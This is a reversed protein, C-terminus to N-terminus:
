AAKRMPPEVNHIAYQASQIREMMTTLLLSAQAVDLKAMAQAERLAVDLGRTAVKLARAVKVTRAAPRNREMAERLQRKTVTAVDLDRVDGGAQIFGRVASAATRAFNTRRNRELTRRRTEDPSAIDVPAIDATIVARMVAAYCVDNATTFCELHAKRDAKNLKEGKTHKGKVGHATKAILIRLYTGLVKSEHEMTHQRDRALAEIDLPSALFGRSTIRNIISVSM